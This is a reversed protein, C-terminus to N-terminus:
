HGPDPNVHSSIGPRTKKTLRVRKGLYGGPDSLHGPTGVQRKGGGNGVRPLSWPPFLTTFNTTCYRLKLTGDLLESASGKLYELVDCVAKLCQHHCSELPRSTLGHSCQNWGLHRLRSMHSGLSCPLFRGLGGLLKARARVLSSLFQCGHRIEIGESVPVSPLLIPRNAGVHPGTVKESLLRHGAWQEFLILLELFSIGFHGLEVAGSPWHWTSLFSTFKVLISVSYPWAAIDDGTIRGVDVHIRLEFLLSEFRLGAGRIGFWLILLRVVRVMMISRFRLFAIMFRHLDTIIPYWHCRAQLLRRGADILAESQHRRGLDAAADAEANGHQDVLRVRGQRVDVDEAHGEVKTVRVTERGRTRIMYRALAIVDGDKVLPLPKVLSDHDLLRGISGAVNLNDIGLHCPWYAQLALFTQM